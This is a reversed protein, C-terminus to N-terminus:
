ILKELNQRSVQISITEHMEEWAKRERSEFHKSALWGSMSLLATTPIIFKRASDSPLGLCAVLFTFYLSLQAISRSKERLRDIKMSINSLKGQISDNM